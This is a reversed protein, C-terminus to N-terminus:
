YTVPHVFRTYMGLRTHKEYKVENNKFNLKPSCWRGRMLTRM